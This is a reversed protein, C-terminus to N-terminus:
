LIWILGNGIVINYKFKLQDPIKKLWVLMVMCTPLTIDVQTAKNQLDIAHRCPGWKNGSTGFRRKIKQVRGIWWTGFKPIQLICIPM